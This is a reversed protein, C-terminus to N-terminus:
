SLNLNLKSAMFEKVLLEERAGDQMHRLKEEIGTDVLFPNKLNKISFKNSYSRYLPFKVLFFNTRALIM